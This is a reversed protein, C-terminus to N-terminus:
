TMYYLIILVGDKNSGFSLILIKYTASIIAIWVHNKNSESKLIKRAVM